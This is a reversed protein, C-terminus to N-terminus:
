RGKTIKTSGEGAEHGCKAAKRNKAGGHRGGETSERKRQPRLTWIGRGRGGKVSGEGEEHGGKAVKVGAM